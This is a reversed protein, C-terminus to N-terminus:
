CQVYMCCVFLYQSSNEEYKLKKNKISNLVDVKIQNMDSASNIFDLKRKRTNHIKLDEAELKKNIKKNNNETKEKKEKTM